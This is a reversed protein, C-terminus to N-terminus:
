RGRLWPSAHRLIDDFSNRFLDPETRHRLRKRQSTRTVTHYYFHLHSDQHYHSDLHEDALFMGPCHNCWWFQAWYISFTKEEGIYDM